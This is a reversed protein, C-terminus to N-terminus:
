AVRLDRLIEKRLILRDTVLHGQSSSQLPYLEKLQTALAENTTILHNKGESISIVSLLWRDGDTGLSQRVQSLLDERALLKSADWLEIQAIKYSQGGIEVHKTDNRIASPLDEMMAAEIEHYYGAKWDSPLDTYQALEVLAARDKETTVSAKLDLTNAVIAMYLLNANVPSIHDQLGRQKFEEWVLTACSGIAEIKAKGGIKEGWDNEHGFHHDFLAAIKSQDVFDPFFEPNSVDMLVFDREKSDEPPVTEINLEWSRVCQPITANFPAPLVAKANRGILSMLQQYAHCCALVDIDTYASGGTIIHEKMSQYLVEKVLTVLDAPATKENEGHNEIVLHVRGRVSSALEGMRYAVKKPDFDPSREKMREARLEEPANIGIWLTDKDLIGTPKISEPNGLLANNGSLVSLKTDARHRKFGYRTEMGGEIKRIWSIEIAGRQAAALFEAESLTKNEIFSDNQRAARTIARVPVDVPGSLELDDRVADVLTSKGTCSSGVIVIRKISILQALDSRRDVVLSSLGAVRELISEGIPRIAESSM